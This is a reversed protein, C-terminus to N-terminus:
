INLEITKKDIFEYIHKETSLTINILVIDLFEILIYSLEIPHIYASYNELM